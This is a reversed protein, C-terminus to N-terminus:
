IIKSSDYIIEGDFIVQYGNPFHKNYKELHIRGIIDKKAWDPSSSIHTSLIDGKDTVATAIYDLGFYFDEKLVLVKIKNM